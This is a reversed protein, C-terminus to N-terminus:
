PGTVKLRAFNKSGLPTPFTFKVENATPFTVTFGPTPDALETNWPGTLTASTEVTFDTNYSGTYAPHKAWTVSLSAVTNITPLATFGTTNTNGGLFFEVGNKVGDNDHDEDRNTLSAGNLTAWASYGGAVSATLDGEADLAFNTFGTASIALLQASTLGSGSGFNLSSTPDGSFDLNGTLTLTGAWTATGSTFALRAGTALNITAAGTVDLTGATETGATAANLTGAGILVASANPITNTAGLALTGGSITTAGTYTNAGAITFTGAGNKTLALNDGSSGAPGVQGGLKGAYTSPDTNNVTLTALTVNTNYVEQSRDVNGTVNTLGALTQNNGNLNLECFRGGGTGDGGDLTLKTTVPLANAVGLRVFINANNPPGGAFASVTTMRTSGTYISAANLIILGYSNTAEVGSLILDGDGIIAGGLTFPVLSSGSGDFSSAHINATTGVGGLTIPAAIVAGNVSSRLTTGGGMTIGTVNNLPTVNGVVLTGTSATIAVAGTFTNAGGLTLTGDGVKNLNVNGTTSKIVGNFTTTQGNNGVTFTSTAAGTNDIIGSGSLGNISDSKGNLDLAGNVTVNGAVGGAGHPIVNNAGLRLTGATVTTNGTYDNASSSLITTGEGLKTIGFAGSVKGGLTLTRTAAVNWINAAGLSLPCNLTLDATHASSLDIDNFAAGLTLTHGANITVPGAPNEITIGSWTVDAGLVTTNASTVTSNWNAVQTSSPALGGVWSTGDSLAFTNNDKIIVSSIVLNLTNGTISLSAFTGPIVNSISVATPATGSTSGWTMLPYTGIALGSDVTVNVSPAVTFTSLGTVILPSLTTSPAVAGFNFELVGAATSTLASCTWNLTNDTVAVGLTAAVNNLKITSSSCNGGVVGVLKGANLTTDGSYSNGGSLRLVGTGAKTIGFTTGSINGSFGVFETAVTSGTEVTLTRTAALSADGSFILSKENTVTTFTPNNSFTIPNGVTIDATTAARMKTAGITLTGTGFAGNTPANAPGTSSTNVQLVGTGSMANLNTGGSYTKAGSAVINGTSSATYSIAGLGGFLASNTMGGGSNNYTVTKGTAITSPGAGTTNITNSGSNSVTLNENVIITGAFSGSPSGSSTLTRTGTGAVVTIQNTVSGSNGFQLTGGTTADGLNINFGTSGGLAGFGGSSFRLATGGSVTANAGAGFGAAGAGTFIVTGGGSFALSTGAGSLASNFTNVNGGNNITAAAGLNITGASLIINGSNDDFTINGADVTGSVTVTGAALGLTGTGFNVTNSTTSITNGPASGTGAADATWLSATSLWTGGATGFGAAADNDWYLAQASASSATFHMLLIAYLVTSLRIQLLNPKKM